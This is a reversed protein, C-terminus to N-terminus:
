TGSRQLIPTAHVENPLRSPASTFCDRHNLVKNSDSMWLFLSEGLFHLFRTASAARDFFPSYFNLAILAFFDRPNKHLSSKLRHKCAASLTPM